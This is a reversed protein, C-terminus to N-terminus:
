FNWIKKILNEEILEFAIRTAKIWSICHKSVMRAFANTHTEMMDRLYILVSATTQVRVPRAPMSRKVTRVRSDLVANANM